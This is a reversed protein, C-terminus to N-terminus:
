RKRKSYFLTLSGPGVHAGIAGGIHNVIFDKAGYKESIMSKLKEATELDDGHTICFITNSLDSDINREEVLEVMRKLVKNKGRIKELPILKGDNVELIPKINLMGGLIANTRSVRGGRYLYEINDVTFIHDINKSFFEATEIIEEKTGGNKLTMGAEYVVLGYGGSAAKTDIITIDADPHKEQVSLKAINASQFTSSLGSSFGIYIIEDGNKIHREFSNEFTIPTIQATKFVEGDRMSNYVEVPEINVKDFYEKEGKIVVIPLEEIGLDDIISAPLDCASDCIIKISM